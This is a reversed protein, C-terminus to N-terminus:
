KPSIGLSLGQAQDPAELKSLVSLQARSAGERLGIDTHYRVIKRQVLKYSHLICIMPVNNPATILKIRMVMMVVFWRSIRKDICPVFMQDPWTICDKLEFTLLEDLHEAM